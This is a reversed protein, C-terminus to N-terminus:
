DTGRTYFKVAEHLLTRGKYDRTDKSAGRELLVKCAHSSHDRHDHGSSLTSFLVTAGVKNRIDIDVKAELLLDLVEVAENNLSNLGGLRLAHLPTEGEHNKLSPNAGADLLAKVISPEPQICLKLMTHLVNNGHEDVVNCDPRYELFKAIMDTDSRRGVLRLLPSQGDAQLKNIDAPGEDLIAVMSDVDTVEHLPTIGNDDAANVDAGADLLLRTLVHNNVADHLITRGFPCRQHIDAGAQILTFFLTRLVDTDLEYDRGWPQRVEIDCLQHLPTWGRTPDSNDYMYCAGIGAFEDGSRECLINPDAGAEVLIKVAEPNRTSGACFLPTDGRIKANVDVGPHQLIRRVLEPRGSGAAWALARHVIEINNIHRLFIDVTELHGNHCAYQVIYLNSWVISLLSCFEMCLSVMLPTHGVSVPANGCWNGPNEKTKRTLPDVGAELLVDVCRFHNKSAAERIPKRGTVREDQDPNAGAQVLLSIIDAHGSTAAWWLPTKGRVDCAHINEGNAAILKKAYSVLGTMAAIHLQTAGHIADEGDPWVLKLLDGLRQNNDLFDGLIANINDQAFGTADSKVVHRHWNASAYELFPYKLRLQVIEPTGRSSRNYYRGFNGHDAVDNTLFKVKIQDLCGSQLYSLCAVAIGTHTPGPVLIPNGVPNEPRTSGILYETFSHHVVCITEDPLIELLPGCANRVLDKTSKLDRGIKLKYTVSIMEALEILRLPRTAHTVCQLILQQIDGPLSSRQAHERLLKTYLDNLDAPLRLLVDQIQANKELFADMALKAYLFLGNANGPVAEKIRKQDDQSISSSSLSQAVYAAIDVDVLDEQLRIQLANSKRLASEVSPVPRSTILVKVQGPRWTGLAGLAELFTDNGRDMEDLADAVCYVKGTLGSFAMRLDKWLDELSLSDIARRSDLYAKLQRQLPPSYVLVQDFWDRLLAVPQHNADIIQRFFFYLVPIGRQSQSLDNILKSALVSKGSGPIGKIWLLGREDNRLWDHYATSATLWNGTGAAHSALHKQYEGSENDYSTPQLWARIAAITQGSEPLIQEPNYNRIDDRGIIIADDDSPHTSDSAM